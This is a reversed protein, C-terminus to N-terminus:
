VRTVTMAATILGKIDLILGVRGDGMIAGGAIGPVKGMNNGLSKTVVQNQAMLDDVFLACRQVGEGVIVLLGETLSTKAGAVGFLRHLRFVPLMQGKLDLMEAKGEVTHIDAAAPRLAVQINATPLIYKEGGVRVVMGDTITMTLPMRLTFTCGQGEANEIEIRGHLEEVAKRVVDLGVGRGSVETVKEATSFGPQFILQWVEQDNLKQAPEILGREIAKKEIRGRSLGRGDDKITILINGESHGAELCIRGDGSKGLRRRDEPTEIGHDISNRIMHILPDTILDVMNRDIETEAGESIFNVMKGNKRALDRALRNLKQFTAKLPVMRLYMSLDQLERVIKGAHSIKKALGHHGGNLVIDDQSVMSQAIVLEGVMDLLKDLRDIRIRVSSDSQEDSNKGNNGNQDGSAIDSKQTLWEKFGPQPALAAPSVSVPATQGSTELSKLAAMVPEYQDPLVVPQGPSATKLRTLIHKLVDLSKLALDANGASYATKGDRVRALVSEVSHAMEMICDLNIFSATGKITHFARFITNLLEQDDPDKEWGLLASEAQAMYELNETVFESLLEADLGPPMVFSVAKPDNGAKKGAKKSGVKQAAPRPHEMALELLVGIRTLGIRCTEPDHGSMAEATDLADNLLSKQRGQSGTISARIGKKFDDLGELNEPDLGILTIALQNLNVNTKIKFKLNLTIKVSPRQL